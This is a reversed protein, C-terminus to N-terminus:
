KGQLTKIVEGVTKDGEKEQLYSLYTPITMTQASVSGSDDRVFLNIVGKELHEDMLKLVETREASSLDKISRNKYKKLIRKVSKRDLMILEGRRKSYTGYSYYQNVYLIDKIMQFISSTILSEYQPIDLLDNKKINQYSFLNLLFLNLITLVRKTKQIIPHM